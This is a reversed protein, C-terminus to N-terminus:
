ELLQLLQHTYASLYKDGVDVSRIELETATAQWALYQYRAYMPYASLLKVDMDTARELMRKTVLESNSSYAIVLARGLKKDRSAQVEPLLLMLEKDRSLAHAFSAQFAEEASREPEEDCAQSCAEERAKLCADYCDFFVNYFWDSLSGRDAVYLRGDEQSLMRRVAEILFSRYLSRGLEDGHRKRELVLLPLHAEGSLLGETCRDRQQQYDLCVVQCDGNDRLGAIFTSKGLCAQGELILSRSHCVFADTAPQSCWERFNSFLKPASMTEKTAFCKCSILM